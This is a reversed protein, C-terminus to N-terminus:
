KLGRIANDINKLFMLEMLKLLEENSLTPYKVKMEKLTEILTGLEM